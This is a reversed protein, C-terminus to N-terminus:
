RAHMDPPTQGRLQRFAAKIVVGQEQGKWGDPFCIALADAIRGDNLDALGLGELAARLSALQADHKTHKAQRPRTPSGTTTATGSRRPSYFLVLRGDWGIGSARIQRCRQQLESSFFPRRNSVMYIPPPFVGQEVLDYFRARSLGVQRAMASVSIVASQGFDPPHAVATPDNRPM